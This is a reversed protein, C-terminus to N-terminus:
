ALFDLESHIGSASNYWESLDLPTNMITPSGEQFAFEISTLTEDMDTCDLRKRSCGDHDTSAM